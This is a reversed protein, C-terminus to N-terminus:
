LLKVLAVILGGFTWKLLSSKATEIAARTEQRLTEVAAKIEPIDAKTAPNANLLAVRKGGARSDDRLPHARGPQHRAVM